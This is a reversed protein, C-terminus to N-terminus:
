RKKDSTTPSAAPGRDERDMKTQYADRLAKPDASVFLKQDKWAIKLDNWGIVKDRGRVVGMTAGLTVIVEKVQGTKPDLWFEEMRGLDKGDTDHLKAGLLWKAEVLGGPHARIDRRDDRASSETRTEAPQDVRSKRSDAAGATGAALSFATGVVMTGALAYGVIQKATSM